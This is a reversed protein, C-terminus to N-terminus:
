GLQEKVIFISFYKELSANEDQKSTLIKDQGLCSIIREGDLGCNQVLATQNLLGGETLLHSLEKAARGTKMIIKTGPATLGEVLGQYSGPIIHISEGGDALSIGLRAAAACFSTIGPVSEVIYGAGQVQVRLYSFTSYISPDGLTLFAVPCGQLLRDIIQQAAQKRAEILVQPDRSMPLSLKIIEKKAIEPVAQQAIELATLSGAEDKPIAIVPCTEIIRQAKLTLLEPDGPGVGVGYFIGKM